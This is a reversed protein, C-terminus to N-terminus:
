CENNVLGSFIRRLIKDSIESILFHDDETRNLTKSVHSCPKISQRKVNILFLENQVSDCISKIHEDFNRIKQPETASDLEAEHGNYSNMPLGRKHSNKNSHRNLWADCADHSGIFLFFFNSKERICVLRYGSGLNFKYLNKIRADKKHTLKGANTFRSGKFVDEIIRRARQAAIFPAKVQKEMQILKKEVKPSIHVRVIM